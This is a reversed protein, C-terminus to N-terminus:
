QSMQAHRRRNKRSQKKWKESSLSVETSLGLSFLDTTTICLIHHLHNPCTHGFDDEAGELVARQQVVWPFLFLPRGLSVQLLVTSFSIFSPLRDHSVASCCPLSWLWHFDRPSAKHVMLCSSSQTLSHTLSHTLSYHALSDIFHHAM